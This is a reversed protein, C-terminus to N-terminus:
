GETLRQYSPPTPRTAHWHSTILVSFVPGFTNMELM